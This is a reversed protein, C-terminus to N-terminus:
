EELQHQLACQGIEALSGDFSPEQSLRAMIDSQYLVPSSSVPERARRGAERIAVALSQGAAATGAAGLPRRRRHSSCPMSLYRALDLKAFALEDRDDDIDNM